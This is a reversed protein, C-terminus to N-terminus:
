QQDRCEIRGLHMELSTRIKAGTPFVCAAFAQKESFGRRASRSLKTEDYM